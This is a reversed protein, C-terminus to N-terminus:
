KVLVFKKFLGPLKAEAIGPALGIWFNRGLGDNDPVIFNLGFVTGPKLELPALERRPIAVHYVTHTGIREIKIRGNNLKGTAVGAPAQWRWIVTQNNPGLAFGYEYDNNDYNQGFQADNRTDIALQICDGAWIDINTAPQFHINDTVEAIFYLYNPDWTISVKVSLNDPGKWGITPDSPLVQERKDLVIIDKSDTPLLADLFGTLGTRNRRCASMAPLNKQINVATGSTKPTLDFKATDGTLKVPTKLDITVATSGGPPLVVPLKAAVKTKGVFVDLDGAYPVTLKNKISLSLTNLDPLGLEIAVPRRNMITSRIRDTLRTVANEKLIAYSPNASITMLAINNSGPKRPANAGTMTWVEAEDLPVEVQLPEQTEDDLSDWAALVVHDDKKFAYIKIDYDSIIPLPKVSAGDLLKAATAYAATAALPKVGDENRWIGYEYYGGEVCGIDRFWMLRKVEPHSKAILHARALYAAYRVAWPSDFPVRADLGWGLEGIWLERDPCKSKFLTVFDELRKKMNGLEPGLAMGDPGLYRPNSYPHPAFVDFSHLADKMVEISFPLGDGSVDFVLKTKTRKFSPYAVNLLAAFSKERDAVSPFTLDPENHFDFYTVQSRYTELDKNIYGLITEPTIPFGDKGTAWAPPPVTLMTQLPGFGEKIVNLGEPMIFKGKEKEVADWLAGGHRIWNVGIAHLPKAGIAGLGDTLIGFFSDAMAIKNPERVVTVPSVLEKLLVGFRDRLVFKVTYYGPQMKPLLELKTKMSRGPELKLTLTNNSISGLTAESVNYYLSVPLAAAPCRSNFLAVDLTLPLNKQLMVIESLAGSTAQIGVPDADEYATATTGEELQVGDLWIPEKPNGSGFSFGAGVPQAMPPLPVTLRTWTSTLPRQGQMIGNWGMWAYIGITGTTKAKAYFSLTYPRDAKIMGTPVTKAAGTFRLSNSGVAATTTDIAGDTNWSGTGIEFSTNSTFLNKPTKAATPSKPGSAGATNVFEVCDIKFSFPDLHYVAFAFAWLKGPELIQNGKGSKPYAYRFDKFPVVVRTWQDNSPVPMSARFCDAGEPCLRPNEELLLECGPSGSVRKIWFSIANCNGPAPLNLRCVLTTAGSKPVTILLSGKGEAADTSIALTPKEADSSVWSSWTVTGDNFNDILRQNAAKSVSILCTSLLFMSLFIKQRM